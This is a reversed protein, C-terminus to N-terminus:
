FRHEVFLMCGKTHRESTPGGPYTNPGSLPNIGNGALVNLRTYESIRYEFAGLLHLDYDDYDYRSRLRFAVDSSLNKSYSVKLYKTSSGVRFGKRIWRLEVPDELRSARLRLSVRGWKRRHTQVRVHQDRINDIAVEVDRFLPLEKAANRLPRRLMRTGNKTLRRQHDASDREDLFNAMEASALRQEAFILPQGLAREVRKRDDGMLEHLFRLCFREAASSTSEIHEDTLRWRDKPREPRHLHLRKNRGELDFSEVSITADAESPSAAGWGKTETVSAPVFPAEAEGEQWTSHGVSQPPLYEVGIRVIEARTPPLEVPQCEATRDGPAGAAGTGMSPVSCGACALILMLSPIFRM